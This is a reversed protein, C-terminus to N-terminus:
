VPFCAHRVFRELEDRSRLRPVSVPINSGSEPGATFSVVQKGYRLALQIESATGDGGPLAIIADCTLVNIHNRSLDHTGQRGSFPLHTYIALDVFENPYGPKPTTRDQESACPIIGICIGRRRPHGTYARCVARMAGPGGGTLLNVGAEALVEGVVRADDEHDESGSGMVGITYRALVETM